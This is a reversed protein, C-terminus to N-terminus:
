RGSSQRISIPFIKVKEEKTLSRAIAGVKTGTEIATSSSVNTVLRKRYQGPDRLYANTEILPKKLM